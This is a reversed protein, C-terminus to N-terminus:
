LRRGGGAEIMRIFCQYREYLDDSYGAATFSGLGLTFFIAPGICCMSAGLAAALGGGIIWKSLKNDFSENMTRRIWYAMVAIPTPKTARTKDPSIRRCNPNGSVKQGGYTDNRHTGRIGQAFNKIQNNM